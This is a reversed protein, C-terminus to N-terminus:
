LVCLFRIIPREALKNLLCRSIREVEVSKLWGFGGIRVGEVVRAKDESM